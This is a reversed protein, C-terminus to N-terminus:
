VVGDEIHLPQAPIQDFRHSVRNALSAEDDTEDKDHSVSAGINLIRAHLIVVHLLLLSQPHFFVLKVM